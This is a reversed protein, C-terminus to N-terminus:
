HNKSNEGRIVQPLHGIQHAYKESPSFGGVLKTKKELAPQDLQNERSTWFGGTM